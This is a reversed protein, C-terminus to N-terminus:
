PFTMAKTKDYNFYDLFPVWQILGVLRFYLYNLTGIIPFTKIKVIKIKTINKINRKDMKFWNWNAPM